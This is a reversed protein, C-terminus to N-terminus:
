TLKMGMILYQNWLILRHVTSTIVCYHYQVCVETENGEKSTSAIVINDGTVWDM